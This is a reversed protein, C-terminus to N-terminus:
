PLLIWVCPRAYIEQTNLKMSYSGDTKVCRQYGLAGGEDKTPTALWYDHNAKIQAPSLNSLDAQRTLYAIDGTGANISPWTQSEDVGIDVDVALKHLTPANLNRYWNDVKSRISSEKYQINKSIDGSYQWPGITDKLMLKVYKNNGNYGQAAKIWDTGDINVTEGINMTEISKVTVTATAKKSMDDKATVTVTYSGAKTATFTGATIAAGTTPNVSWNVASNGTGSVLNDGSVTATFLINGTVGVTYEATAPTLSVSVNKPPQVPKVTTMNGSADKYYIVDDSQIGDTTSDLKGNGNVKDGYFFDNGEGDKGAYIYYKGNNDEVIPRGKEGTAGPNNNPGGGTLEGLTDPGTVQQWVNQGKDVWWDGGFKNANKDDGTGPKRDAGGWVAGNNNLSGSNDIPIWINGPPTEEVWYNGNGDKIAPRDTGDGPTGKPNYVYVPPQKGNGDKDTKEYVYPPVGVPKYYNGDGGKIVGPGAKTELNNLAELLDNIADQIQSDSPNQSTLVIKGDNVEDYLSNISEDTYPNPTTAIISESQHILNELQDLLAKNGGGQNGGGNGVVVLYPIRHEVGWPDTTTGLIIAAGNDTQATVVPGQVTAVEENMSTWTIKSLASFPETVIPIIVTGNKNAIAGEAGGTITYSKVNTSDTVKYHMMTFSGSKTCAVVSAVGPKLGLVTGTTANELVTLQVVNKDNVSWNVANAANATQISAGVELARTYPGAPFPDTFTETYDAPRGFTIGASNILLGFVFLVCVISTILYRKQILTKM